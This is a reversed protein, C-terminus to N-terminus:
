SSDVTRSRSQKKIVWVYIMNYFTLMKVNGLLSFLRAVDRVDPLEVLFKWLCSYASFVRPSFVLAFLPVLIALHLLLLIYSIARHSKWFDVIVITSNHKSIRQLEKVLKSLKVHRLMYSSVIASACRDRLCLMEASCCVYDVQCSKFFKRKAHMLGAFSLDILVLHTGSRDRLFPVNRGTGAGLDIVLVKGRCKGLERAVIDMYFKRFHEDLGLTMAIAMKDYDGEQYVRDNLKAITSM